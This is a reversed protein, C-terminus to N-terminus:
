AQRGECPWPQTGGWGEGGLWLPRCDLFAFHTGPRPPCAPPCALPWRVQPLIKKELLVFPASGPLLLLPHFPEMATLHISLTELALDTLNSGSLWPQSNLLGQSGGSGGGWAEHSPCPTCRELSCGWSNMPVLTPPPPLPAPLSEGDSALSSEDLSLNGLMQGAAKVSRHLTWLVERASPVQVHGGFM